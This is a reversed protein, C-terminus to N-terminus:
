KRKRLINTAWSLGVGFGSILITNIEDNELYKELMLPITSSVTNGTEGMDLPVKEDTEKLKRKIVDIIAKSGQHLLFLDVENQKLDSEVLHAAIQEPVNIAAFNFVARGNMVLYQEKTLAQFGSGNTQLTPKGISWHGNDSLLTATAADGFLLSTNKDESNVIKTYPDATVLIANRFGMENMHAKLISLGYVYGSCGLSVDFASVNKSLGLKGHVVASTHPLGGFDGNQTVVVIAEILEKSIDSKALLKNIAEVAMDSTNINENIHPLIKAGIKSDIFDESEGFKLAQIYNDVKYEPIYSAITNIYM